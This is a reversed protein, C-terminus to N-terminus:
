RLPESATRRMCPRRGQGEQGQPAAQLGGSGRGVVGVEEIEGQCGQRPGVVALLIVRPFISEHVWLSVDEQNDAM